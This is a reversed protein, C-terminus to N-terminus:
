GIKVGCNTIRVFGDSANVGAYQGTKLMNFAESDPTLIPIAKEDDM